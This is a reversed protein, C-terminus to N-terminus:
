PSAAVVVFALLLIRGLAIPWLKMKKFSIGFAVLGYAICGYVFDLCVQALLPAGSLSRRIRSAPSLQLEPQPASAENTKYDSGYQSGKGEFLGLRM